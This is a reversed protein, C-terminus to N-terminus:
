YNSYFALFTLRGNHGNYHCTHYPENNRRYAIKSHKELRIIRRGDSTAFADIGFLDKCSRCQCLVEGHRLSLHRKHRSSQFM